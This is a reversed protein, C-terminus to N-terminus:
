ALAPLDVCLNDILRAPGCWAAALVVLSRDQPDPPGLDQQRRVSVYEPRLRAASMAARAAQELAPIDGGASRLGQACDLLARHLAPARARDEPGLYGNRSSLALGDPDRVTPQGLVRVGMDLDENLRRIILLQQFDKEGFVAVDPRVLNFLKCVVTAVGSFHGPRHAGELDDGLIPVEVRTTGERGRPYVERESPAFLLDVGAEVLGRADDELTRPYAALDEPRDFQLPNVFISAVVRDAEAHARHVLALHGAHLNGMTPVLTVSEGNRRWATLTAALEARTTATRM